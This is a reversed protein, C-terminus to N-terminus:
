YEPRASQPPTAVFSGVWDGQIRAVGTMGEGMTFYTEKSTRFEKKRGDSLQLTVYYKLGEEHETPFQMLHHADFANKAIVYAGEEDTIVRSTAERRPIWWMKFLNAGALFAGLCAVGLPIGTRRLITYSGDQWPSAAESASAMLMVFFAGLGLVFIGIGAFLSCGIRGEQTFM